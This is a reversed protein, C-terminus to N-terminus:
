ESRESERPVTSIRSDTNMSLDRKVPVFAIRTTVLFVGESTHCFVFQNENEDGKGALLIQNSSEPLAKNSPCKATGQRMKKKEKQSKYGNRVSERKTIRELDGRWEVLWKLAVM